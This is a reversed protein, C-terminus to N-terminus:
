NMLESEVPKLMYFHQISKNSPSVLTIDAQKLADHVESIHKTAELFIM